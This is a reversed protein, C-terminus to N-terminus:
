MRTDQALILVSNLLIWMGRLKYLGREAIMDWVVIDTDKSGSALYAGSEAFSLATIESKHGTFKIEM